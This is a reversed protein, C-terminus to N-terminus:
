DLITEEYFPLISKTLYVTFFVNSNELLCHLFINENINPGM